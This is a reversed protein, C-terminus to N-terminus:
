APRGCRTVAAALTREALVAAVKRRYAATAHLDSDPSLRAAAGRAAEALRSPTPEHGVLIAEGALGRVPTGGAGFFALRVGAVRGDADRWLLAVAGVLAFDGHRRAVEAFGWGAEPRPLAFRVETLLEDARLATTLPALFLEGAPVVREGGIARAVVSGELCLLLAPLESSPDAHAISGAVTGRTRIAEHGVCRLAEAIVPVSTAAWRELKRQRALAGVALVGNSARIYDLEAAGNVDVIVAPRSLRMNLMPVLSQGGALVKADDRRQALLQTAMEASGALVYDFPAPKM